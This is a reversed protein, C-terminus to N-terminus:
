AAPGAKEIGRNRFDLKNAAATELPRSTVVCKRRNRWVFERAIM